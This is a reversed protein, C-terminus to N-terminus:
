GSDSRASCCKSKRNSASSAKEGSASACCAASMWARMFGIRSFSDSLLWKVSSMSVTSIGSIGLRAARHFLRSNERVRGIQVREAGSDRPFHVRQRLLNVFQRSFFEIDTEVFCNCVIRKSLSWSGVPFFILDPKEVPASKSSASAGFYSIACFIM